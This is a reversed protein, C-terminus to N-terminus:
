PRHVVTFMRQCAVYLNTAPFSVLDAWFIANGHESLQIIAPRPGLLSNPFVYIRRRVNLKIGSSKLQQTIDCSHLRCRMYAQEGLLSNNLMRSHFVHIYVRPRGTIRENRTSLSRSQSTASVDCISCLVPNTNNQVFLHLTPVSWVRFYEYPFTHSTFCMLRRPLRLGCKFGTTSSYALSWNLFSYRRIRSRPHYLLLQCSLRGQRRWQPLWKMTSSASGKAALTRKAKNVEKM